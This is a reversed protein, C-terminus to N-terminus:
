YVGGEIEILLLLSSGLSQGNISMLSQATILRNQLSPVSKVVSNFFPFRKAQDVNARPRSHGLRESVTCDERLSREVRSIISRSSLWRSRQDNM